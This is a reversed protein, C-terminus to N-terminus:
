MLDRAIRKEAFVKEFVQVDDEFATVVASIIWETRTCAIHATAVTRVFWGPRRMGLGVALPVSIVAAFGALFLSNGLRKGIQESVSNKSAWSTGFDGQVANGLWEVYRTTIPRNLGLDERGGAAAMVDEDHLLPQAMLAAVIEPTVARDCLIKGADLDGRQDNGAPGVTVAIRRQHRDFTQAVFRLCQDTGPNVFIRVKGPRLRARIEMAFRDGPPVAPQTAFLITRFIRGLKAGINEVGHARGRAAIGIGTKPDGHFAGSLMKRTALGGKIAARDLAELVTRPFNAPPMDFAQRIAVQCHEAGARDSFVQEITASLRDIESSDPHRIDITCRATQPIANIAGPEVAIRGVTFRACEDQPM